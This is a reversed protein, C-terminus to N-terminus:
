HLVQSVAPLVTPITANSQFEIHAEGEHAKVVLSVNNADAYDMMADAEAKTLVLSTVGAKHMLIALYVLGIDVGEPTNNEDSM